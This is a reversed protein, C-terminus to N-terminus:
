MAAFDHLSTLSGQLEIKHLIGITETESPAWALWSPWVHCTYPLGARWCGPEHAGVQFATAGRCDMVVVM